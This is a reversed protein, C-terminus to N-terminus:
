ARVQTAAFEQTVGTRVCENATAALATATASTDSAAARSSAAATAETVAQTRGTSKAVTFSEAV